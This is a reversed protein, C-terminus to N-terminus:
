RITMVFSCDIMKLLADDEIEDALSITIWNKKNMHYAPYFGKQSKILETIKYSDAKVNIIEVQGYADTIKNRDILMIVAFWKKNDSHRFVGYTPYKPWLFEPQLHYKRKIHEAIMNGQRSSFLHTIFCKEKIDNLLEQYAERVKLVFGDTFANNKINLYEEETDLDIIKSTVESNDNVIIEAKFENLFFVKTIVYRGDIMIFGYQELLKFDATSNKFIEKEIELM